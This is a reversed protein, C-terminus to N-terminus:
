RQPAIDAPKTKKAELNEFEPKTTRSNAPRACRGAGLGQHRRRRLAGSRDRLRLPRAPVARASARRRPRGPRLRRAGARDAALRYARGLAAAVDPTALGASIRQARARGQRRLARAIRAAAARGSGATSPSASASEPVHTTLYSFPVGDVSRVRVARQLLQDPGVGLAERSRAKPRCM